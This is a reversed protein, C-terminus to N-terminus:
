AKGYNDNFVVEESDKKGTDKPKPGTQGDSKIRSTMWADEEDDDGVEGLSEKIEDAFSKLSEPNKIFTDVHYDLLLEEFTRDLLLPHNTPLNFKNSWWRILFQEMEEYRFSKPQVIDYALKKIRNYDM